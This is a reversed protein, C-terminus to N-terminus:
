DKFANEVEDIADQLCPFTMPSSNKFYFRQCWVLDWTENDTTSSSAVVQGDLKIATVTKTETTISDPKPVIIEWRIIEFGKIGDTVFIDYQDEEWDLICSMDKQEGHDVIDISHVFNVHYGMMVDQLTAQIFDIAPESKDAFFEDSNDINDTTM